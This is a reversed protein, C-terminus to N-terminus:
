SDVRWLHYPLQAHKLLAGQSFSPTFFQKRNHKLFSAPSVMVQDILCTNPTALQLTPKLFDPHKELHPTGHKGHHVSDPPAFHFSVRTTAAVPVGDATAPSFELRSATDLSVDRFVEPGSEFRTAIVRGSADVDVLVSVDGHEGSAYASEPYQLEVQRLLTPPRVHIPAPTQITSGSPAALVPRPQVWFICLFGGIALCCARWHSRAKFSRSLVYGPRSVAGKPDNPQSGTLM